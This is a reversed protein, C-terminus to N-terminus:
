RAAAPPAAMMRRAYDLNNRAIALSPKLRLAEELVVSATAYHGLSNYAAGMNNWAEASAPNLRLASEAASIAGAYDGRQYLSLSLNLYRDSGVADSDARGQRLGALYERATVDGPSIALAKELLAAAEADRQQEILWRAYFDYSDPVGPAEALAQQFHREAEAPHGTANEAIAINVLLVPYAPMLVQARHFYDLASAYDGKEMRTNGYNMLGRGNGPSKLTVDRWLSEEDKWDRNREYTGFAAGLYCLVVVGCVAGAAIRPWRLMPALALQAAGALAMALGAYPFFTRHDNMVEAMPLLSTPLLALIFWALGFGIVRLRPRACSWVTAVALLLTFVIGAWFRVGSASVFPQLDYDASLGSPWLFDKFYLLGVYPQARLYAASDNAGAVWGKPTMRSVFATAAGCLVFALIVRAIRKRPSAGAVPFMCAYLGFLPAFIAAPPKALVGIAAPLAALAGSSRGWSRQAWAFSALVALTSLVDSRAIIYNVTDANAPHLAYLAAAALSLQANSRLPLHADLLANTVLALLIVEAIFSLFDSLQFWFPNLGGALAYDIALTTSVLPRYSQNSPLASFTAADTFFRPINRLDRIAANDVITHSDDFHFSNHFHNSYALLLLTAFIVIELILGRPSAGGTPPSPKSVPKSM